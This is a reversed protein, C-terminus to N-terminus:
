LYAKPSDPGVIISLIAKKNKRPINISEVTKTVSHCDSFHYYVGFVEVTGVSGSAM